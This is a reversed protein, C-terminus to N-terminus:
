TRAVRREALRARAIERRADIRHLGITAEGFREARWIRNQAIRRFLDGPSVAHKSRASVCRTPGKVDARVAADEVDVLLDTRRRVAGVHDLPQGFECASRSTLSSRIHRDEVSEAGLRTVFMRVGGNAER